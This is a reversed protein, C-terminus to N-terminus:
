QGHAVRDQEAPPKNIHQGILFIQSCNEGELQRVNRKTVVDIGAIREVVPQKKGILHCKLRIVM